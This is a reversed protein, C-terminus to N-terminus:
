TAVNSGEKNRRSISRLRAAPAVRDLLGRAKDILTQKEKTTFILSTGVALAIWLVLAPLYIIPSFLLLLPLPLSLWFGADPRLGQWIAMATTAAAAVIASIMTAVAAGYLGWQPILWWNLAFNAALVVAWIIAIGWAQESCFLYPRLIYHLCVLGMTVVVPAMVLSADHPMRGAILVLLLPKCLLLGAGTLALFIAGLKSSFCITQGVEKRRGEEWAKAMHPVLVVAAMGVIATMPQCLKAAIFYEGIQALVTDSEDGSLHLLMYRDIYRWLSQLSGATWTGLSFLLVTWWVANAKSKTPPSPQESEAHTKDENDDSRMARHVFWGIAVAAVLTIAIHATGCAFADTRWALLFVCALVFFGINHFLDLCSDLRFLRLGHL